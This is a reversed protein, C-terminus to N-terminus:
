FWGTLQEEGTLGSSQESRFWALAVAIAMDAHHGAGGAELVQNGAATFKVSFSELEAMLDNRLPLDAAIALQQTEFAGALSTILLNKAVNTFRGVRTISSGGVIQVPMHAIEFENLVDVFARGVGTADVTLTWRDAIPSRQTLAAVHRAIAVYRTDTIRDAYVVSRQRKELRQQWGDWVPYQRDEIIAIATPDSQGLDLGIHFRHHGTVRRVAPDNGTPLIVSEGRHLYTM